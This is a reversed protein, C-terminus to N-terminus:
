RHIDHARGKLIADTLDLRTRVATPVHRRLWRSAAPTILQALRGHERGARKM